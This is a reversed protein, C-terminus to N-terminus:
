SYLVGEDIMEFKTEIIAQVQQILSIKNRWLICEDVYITTNTFFGNDNERKLYINPNSELRQFENLFIYQNLRQYWARSSQKLGIAYLPRLLKCIINPNDSPPLGEPIIM